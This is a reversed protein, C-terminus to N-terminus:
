RADLLLRELQAANAAQSLDHDTLNFAGRRLGARDVIIVDRYAVGWASWVDVGAVDQLWSLTRGNTMEANAAEFDIGNVGLLVVEGPAEADLRKQLLDLFGFQGM